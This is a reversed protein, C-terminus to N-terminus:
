TVVGEILNYVFRLLIYLEKVDKIKHM